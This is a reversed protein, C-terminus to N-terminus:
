PVALDGPHPARARAVRAAFRARLAPAHPDRAEVGRAWAAGATAAARALRHLDAGNPVGSPVPELAPLTPNRLGALEARTPEGSLARDWATVQAQYARAWRRTAPGYEVLLGDAPFGAAALTAPTVLTPRAARYRLLAVQVRQSRGAPAFGAPPRPEPQVGPIFNGVLDVETVRVGSAPLPSVGRGYVRLPAQAFGPIVAIARERDHPGLDAAIARWDARGLEPRRLVDLDVWVGALCAVGALALAAARGPRWAAEGIIAGFLVAVPVAAALLNRDLFYDRADGALALALPVLLGAAAVVAVPAVRRLSAIPRGADSRTGGAPPRGSDRQAAATGGAFRTAGIWGTVAFVLAGTVGIWGVVGVAAGPRGANAAILDTSGSFLERAVDGARDGLPISAIWSTRDGSGQADGLARLAAATGALLPVVVVLAAPRRRFAGVLVLAEGVIVFVGFYHTLLTLAAAIGWAALSAFSPRARARLCLWVSVGGLLALFSYARAEQSYWVLLPSVAVVAAATWAGWRGTVERAAAWAVPITLTGALASLSRLGAEGDGFVRTWLWALLYYLPPTSESAKLADFAGGFEPRVVEVTVSEDFWFSQDGLGAFRLGAGLAVIALLPWM